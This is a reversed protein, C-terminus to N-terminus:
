AAEERTDNAWGDGALSAALAEIIDGDLTRGAQARLGALAEEVTLAARYPRDRTMGEFEDIVALIRAGLPIQTAVLGHPWGSGDLREARALVFARAAARSSDDGGWQSVNEAAALLAITGAAIGDLGMAVAVRRAHRALEARDLWLDREFRAASQVSARAEALVEPADPYAHARALVASLRAVLPAFLALDDAGFEEGSHKNNVNVTGVHVDAVKIPACLLSKTSYQPHSKKAFRRDTEINEVLV